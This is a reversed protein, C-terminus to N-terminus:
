GLPDFYDQATTMVGEGDLQFARVDNSCVAPYHPGPCAFEAQGGFLPGTFGALAGSWDERTLSEPAANGADWLALLAGFGGLAHFSEVKDEPGYTPFTTRFWDLAESQGEALLPPVLSGVVYWDEFLEPSEDLTAPVACTTTSIVPAEIQLDQLTQAVQPCQPANVLALVADADAAGSAQVDATVDAATDAIYTTSVEVGEMSPLAEIQEVASRLADNDAGLIVVDKADLYKAAFAATGVTGGANGGQFGYANTAEFDPGTLPTQLLVPVDASELIPFVFGSGFVYGHVVVSVDDDNAFRQACEQNSAQDVGVNCHEVVVPRGHIGGLEANVLEVAADVGVSVDPYSPTGEDMNIMGVVVPDLSEDAPGSTEPIAGGDAIPGAAETTEETTDGDDTGSSTADDDDDSGCAAVAVTLALVMALRRIPSKEL